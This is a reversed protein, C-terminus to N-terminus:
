ALVEKRIISIVRQQDEQSLYPHMPLSIVRKMCSETARLSGPEGCYKQYASQLHVPKPYFRASPIGQKQLQLALEDPKEVEITYQAWTSTGGTIVEPTGIRNSALEKSYRDAVKNRAVIEEDFIDLKVNLIAAQLTDLRSNIGIRVNDYKDQGRGHVQISFISKALDEDNTFLAGGDGYCSLPKAPYFSTATADAWHMPHHKHLTAGFAQASDAILKLGFEKSIEALAPYDSLQGFLDVSIIAKPNRGKNAMESAIKQRLDDPDMTYTSRDVDVFVPAAGTLAIAEATAVYTFSPCFVVDGPGIGWAMLPMLLADTGSACGFAYQSYCYKALRTELKAVEPGLIYQGHELVASM